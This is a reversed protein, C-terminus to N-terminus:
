KGATDPTIASTTVTRPAAKARGSRFVRLRFKLVFVIM